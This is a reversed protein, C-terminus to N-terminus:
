GMPGLVFEFLGINLIREPRVFLYVYKLVVGYDMNLSAIKDVYWIHTSNEASAFRFLRRFHNASRNVRVVNATSWETRRVDTCSMTSIGKGTDLCRLFQNKESKWENTVQQDTSKRHFIIRDIFVRCFSEYIWLWVCIGPCIQTPENLPITM